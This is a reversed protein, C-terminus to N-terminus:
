GRVIGRQDQAVGAHLFDVGQLPFRGLSCHDTALPLLCTALSLDLRSWLGKSQAAEGHHEQGGFRGQLVEQAAHVERGLTVCHSIFGARVALSGVLENAPPEHRNGM